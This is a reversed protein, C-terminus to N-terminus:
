WRVELLSIHLAVSLQYRLVPVDYVIRRAGNNPSFRARISLVCEELQNVLACLKNWRVKECRHVTQIRETLMM